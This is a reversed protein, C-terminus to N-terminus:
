IGEERLAEIARDLHDVVGSTTVVADRMLRHDGTEQARPHTLRSRAGRLWRWGWRPEIPITCGGDVAAELSAGIHDCYSWLAQTVLEISVLESEALARAPDQPCYVVGSWSAYAASVSQVGFSHVGDPAYGEGLLTREIQEANGRQKDGTNSQGWLVRPASMIRLATHLMHGAWIPDMVWYLSLIYAAEADCGALANLQRTAWKLNEEYSSYRWATLTALDPVELDETLHFISSGFPWAYLACRGSPHQVPTRLCDMGEITDPEAALAAATDPGIYAAIFKHSRLRLQDGTAPSVTSAAIIADGPPVASSEWAAVVDEGVPYGLMTTLTAAFERHSMGLSRRAMAIRTRALERYSPQYSSRTRLDIVRGSDM